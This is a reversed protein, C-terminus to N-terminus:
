STKVVKAKLHPVTALVHRVPDPTDGAQTEEGEWGVTTKSVHRTRM